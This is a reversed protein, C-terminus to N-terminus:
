FETEFGLSARAGLPGPSYLEPLNRMHFEPSLITLVADTELWLSLARTMRWQVAPGFVVGGWLGSSVAAEPVGFGRGRMAGLEAGACLPFLWSGVEPALCGRVAGAFLQLDAGLGPPSDYRAVGSWFAHAGLEVRLPAVQLSGYLGVGPTAGPLPGLSVAGVLRAGLRLRERGAIALPPRPGENDVASAARDQSQQVADVVALPDIALAVKLAMADSLSGCKDAVLTDEETHAGVTLRARLQWRGAENLTVTGFAHVDAVQVSDLSKGLLREM